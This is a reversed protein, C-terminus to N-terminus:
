PVRASSVAWRRRGHDRGSVSSTAPYAAADLARRLGSRNLHRAELVNLARICPRNVSALFGRSVLQDSAAAQVTEM